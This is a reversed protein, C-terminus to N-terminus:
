YVILVYGNGGRTDNAGGSGGQATNAQLPISGAPPMGGAGNMAGDSGNRGIKNEGTPAMGGKGGGSGCQGDAGRPVSILATDGDLVEANTGAVESAGVTIDYSNPYSVVLMARVYAGSGGGGATDTGCGAAGRGGPGWMEVLVRNVGKPPQWSGSATFEQIGNLGGGGAIGTPGM